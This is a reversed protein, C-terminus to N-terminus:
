LGHATFEANTDKITKKKKAEPGLFGSNARPLLNSGSQCKSVEVLATGRRLQALSYGTAAL